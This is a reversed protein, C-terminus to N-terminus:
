FRIKIAEPCKLEKRVWCLMNSFVIRLYCHLCIILYNHMKARIVLIDTSCTGFRDSQWIKKFYPRINSVLIDKPQYKSVSGTSPITEAEIIGGKNPIMSETSVYTSVDSENCKCTEKVFFCLERLPILLEPPM